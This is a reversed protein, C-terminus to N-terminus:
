SKALHSDLACLLAETSKHPSPGDTDLHIHAKQYHIARKQNLESLTSLPDKNNLLPRSKVNKMRSLLTAPSAKLWVVHTRGLLLAATDPHCFAGGGTAIVQLSPSVIKTIVKLEMERFTTEGALEFIEPISVGAEAVIKKDSDTFDIELLKAARRGVVTKGCGMLGVLTIPRDLNSIVSAALKKAKNKKYSPEEQSNKM